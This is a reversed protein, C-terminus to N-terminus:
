SSHEMELIKTVFEKFSEIYVYPSYEGYVPEPNNAVIIQLGPIELSDLAVPISTAEMLTKFKYALCGYGDFKKALVYLNSMKFDVKDNM